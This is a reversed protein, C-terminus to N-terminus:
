IMLEKQFQVELKGFKAHISIRNKTSFIPNPAMYGCATRLLAGNGFDGDYFKMFSKACDQQFIYFKFFYLAITYNDPVIITTKCDDQNNKSLIRGQLSTFNRSCAQVISIKMKFGQFQNM